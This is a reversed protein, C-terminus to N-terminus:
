VGFDVTVVDKGGFRFRCSTFGM